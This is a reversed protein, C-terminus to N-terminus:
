RADPNARGENGRRWVYVPLLVIVSVLFAIMTPTRVGTPAYVIFTFMELLYVLPGLKLLGVEIEGKSFREYLYFFTSSVIFWGLYNTWPIGFWNVTTTTRWVWAKWSTMIPDISLDLIVMLISAFAVRVARRRFYYRATLYSIFGFIVWAFPVFVAVGFLQPKLNKYYYRGFPVGTHTGVMEALFGVLFSIAFFRPFDRWLRRSLVIMALLYFLNYVPSSKFVNALLILALVLYIDRRKGLVM